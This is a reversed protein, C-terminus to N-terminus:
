KEEALRKLYGNTEAQAEKIATIDKQLESFKQEVNANMEAHEGTAWEKFDSVDTSLQKIKGDILTKWNQKDADNKGKCVLYRAIVKVSAYVAGVVTIIGLIWPLYTNILEIETSAM